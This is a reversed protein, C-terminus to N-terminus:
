LKLKNLSNHKKAMLELDSGWLSVYRKTVSLDSHGLLKALSFADMGAIISRKAYTHRLIHPSFRKEIKLDERYTYFRTQVGRTKLPENSNNIFLWDHHLEGRLKLYVTIASLTKESPYVFREELNKTRQILLRSNQLDKVRIGVLESLRIGTDLMLLFMAYDRYGVFTQQNKIYRLIIVIEEDDLTDIMKVRDRLQKINKMPNTKILKVKELYNFFAKIARLRTNVSVVKMRTKLDLIFMEIDNENLEHFSKELNLKKLQQKFYDLEALYYEITAPRLNRLHCNRIFKEILEEDTQKLTILNLEEKSLNRSRRKAM